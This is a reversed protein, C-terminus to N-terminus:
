RNKLREYKENLMKKNHKYAIIIGVIYLVCIGFLIFVHISLTNYSISTLQLVLMGIVLIASIAFNYKKIGNKMTMKNTVFMFGFKRYRVFITILLLIVSTAIYVISGDIFNTNINEVNTIHILTGVTSVAYEVIVGLMFGIFAIFLSYYVPLNFLLTLLIVETIIMTAIAYNGLGAVNRFYFSVTTLVLSIIFVKYYNYKLPFRFLSITLVIGTFLEVFSFFFRVANTALM